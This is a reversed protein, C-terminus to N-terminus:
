EGTWAACHGNLAATKSRTPALLVEGARIRAFTGRPVPQGRAIRMLEDDTLMHLESDTPREDVPDPLQTGNWGAQTSLIFKAATVAAAGSGTSAIKFLNRAVNGLRLAMACDLEGRYHKRLSKPDLGVAEAIKDQPIGALAMGEVQGRTRENPEHRKTM